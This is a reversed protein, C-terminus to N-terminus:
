HGHSLPWHSRRRPAAGREGKKSRERLLLTDRWKELAYRSLLFYGYSVSSLGGRTCIRQRYRSQSVRGSPEHPV